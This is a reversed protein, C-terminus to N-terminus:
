SALQVGTNGKLVRQQHSTKRKTKKKEDGVGSHLLSFKNLHPKAALIFEGPLCKGLSEFFFFIEFCCLMRLFGALTTPLRWVAALFGQCAARQRQSDLNLRFEHSHPLKNSQMCKLLRTLHLSSMFDISDDISSSCQSATGM